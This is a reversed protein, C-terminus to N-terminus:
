KLLNYLKLYKIFLSFNCLFQEVEDLSKCTNNKFCKFDFKKKESKKGRNINDIKNSNLTPSIFQDKHQNINKSYPNSISETPFKRFNLNSNKGNSNMNYNLFYNNM